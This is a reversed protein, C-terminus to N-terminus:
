ERDLVTAVRGVTGGTPEALPHQVGAALAVDADQVLIQLVHQAFLGDVLEGLQLVRGRRVAGGHQHLRHLVAAAVAGALLLGLALRGLRRQLDENGIHHLLDVAVVRNAAARRPGVLPAVLIEREEVRNPQLVRAHGVQAALRGLRRGVRQQEDAQLAVEAQGAALHRALQVGVLVLVVLELHRDALVRRAHGALVLLVALM